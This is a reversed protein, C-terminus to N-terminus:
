GGPVSAKVRTIIRVKMGCNLERVTQGSFKWFARMGVMTAAVPRGMPAHMWADANTKSPTAIPLILKVIKALKARHVTTCAITKAPM